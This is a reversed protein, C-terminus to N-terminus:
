FMNCGVDCNASRQQDGKKDRTMQSGGRPKKYHPKKNEAPESVVSSVASVLDDRNTGVITRGADFNGGALSKNHTIYEEINRIERNIQAIDMNLAEIKYTLETAEKSRFIM